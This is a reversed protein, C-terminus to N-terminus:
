PASRPTRKGRSWGVQDSKVPLFSGASPLRFGENEAGLALNLTARESAQQFIAHSDAFGDVM